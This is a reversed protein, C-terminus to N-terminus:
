IEDSVGPGYTVVFARSVMMVERGVGKVVVMSGNPLLDKTLRINGHDDTHARIVWIHDKPPNQHFNGIFGISKNDMVDVHFLGKFTLVDSCFEILSRCTLYGRYIDRMHRSMTIFYQRLFLKAKM